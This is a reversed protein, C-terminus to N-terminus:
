VAGHKAEQRRDANAYDSFSLFEPQRHCIDLLRFAPHKEFSRRDGHATESEGHFCKGAPVM